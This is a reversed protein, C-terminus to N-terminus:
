KHESVYKDVYMRVNVWLPIIFKYVDTHNWLTRSNKKQTYYSFPIFYSYFYKHILLYKLKM